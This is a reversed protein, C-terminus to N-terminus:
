FLDISYVFIEYVKKAGPPLTTKETKKKTDSKKPTPTVKKATETKKAAPKKASPWPMFNMKLIM